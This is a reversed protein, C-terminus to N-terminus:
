FITSRVLTILRRFGEDDSSNKWRNAFRCVVQLNGIEYHGASDIRDLSCLLEPNDAEGIFQLRLGTLACLGDQDDILRNIYATLESETFRMEKNKVTRTEQQGNANRVTDKVTNMM